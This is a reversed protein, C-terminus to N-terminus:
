FVKLYEGIVDREEGDLEFLGDVAAHVYEARRKREDRDGRDVLPDRMGDTNGATV